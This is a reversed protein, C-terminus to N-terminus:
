SAIADMINLGNFNKWRAQGDVVEWWSGSLTMGAFDDPADTPEVIWAGRDPWIVGGTPLRAYECSYPDTCEDVAWFLDRQNDATFIGVAEHGDELRVIYASM